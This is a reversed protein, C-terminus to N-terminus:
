GNVIIKAGDVGNAIWGACVAAKDPYLPRYRHLVQEIAHEAKGREALAVLCGGFGGGSFRSGLVGDTKSAIAQLAILPESGCEYQDISSQCSRNMAAGFAAFDGAAWLDQGLNVRERETFFHAARRALHPPLLAKQAEFEADAADSLIKGNPTLLGAAQWCEGVRKNFDSSTLERTYGSFIIVWAVDEVGPGHPVMEVQRKLTDQRVIGDARGYISTTQDQVGNNLGLYENEIIRDLEVLEAQSLSLENVEAFAMLYAVGASASSSLGAGLLRGSIHGTWGLKIQGPFLQKLAFLAGRCYRGWDAPKDPQVAVDFRIQGEFDASTLRVAGDAAPAFALVTYADIAVGLVPGGQHDIHAGIPCIRYPSAVVKSRARDAPSLGALTAEIQSDLSPFQYNM